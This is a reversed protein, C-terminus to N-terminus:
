DSIFGIGLPGSQRGDHSAASRRHDQERIGAQRESGSGMGASQKTTNCRQHDRHQCRRDQSLCECGLFPDPAGQDKHARDADYTLRGGDFGVQVPKGAVAAEDMAPAFETAETQHPKLLWIM